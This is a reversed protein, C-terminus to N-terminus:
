PTSNKIEWIQCKLKTTKLLCQNSHKSKDVTDNSTQGEHKLPPVGATEKRMCKLFSFCKKPNPKDDPAVINSVYNWYCKRTEKQVLHKLNKYATRMKGNDATKKIKNYLRDRKRMMRRLEITIWPYGHQHTITRQPIHKDTLKQIEDKFEEWMKNINTSNQHNNIFDNGFNNAETKM